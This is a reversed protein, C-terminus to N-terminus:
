NYLLEDVEFCRELADLQYKNFKDKNDYLWTKQRETLEPSMMISDGSFGVFGSQIVVWGLKCLLDVSNNSVRDYKDKLITDAKYEHLWLGCEYLIGDPSLFGSISESKENYKMSYEFM